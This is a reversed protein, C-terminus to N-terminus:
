IGFSFFIILSAIIYIIAAKIAFNINFIKPIAFVLANITNYNSTAFFNKFYMDVYEKNEYSKHWDVIKITEEM